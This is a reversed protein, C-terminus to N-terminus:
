GENMKNDKASTLERNMAEVEAFVRDMAEVEVFARDMAEVEAFERDMSEVAAFLRDIAESRGRVFSGSTQFYAIHCGVAPSMTDGM